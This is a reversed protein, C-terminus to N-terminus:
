QRVPSSVPIQQVPREPIQQVPREGRQRRPRTDRRYNKISSCTCEDGTPDPPNVKNLAGESNLSGEANFMLSVIDEFLKDDESAALGTGHPDDEDTHAGRMTSGEVSKRFDEPGWYRDLFSFWATQNYKYQEYDKMIKRDATPRSWPFFVSLGHSYQSGPGAFEARIVPNNPSNKTLVNMAAKCADLLKQYPKVDGTAKAFEECYKRLCFCFDYLDTYNEQWYSQSKWHALLICNIVLPNRALGDKLASLGDKLADSLDKLPRQVDTIIRLDCLCLDFSYGALLYDTSNQYVYDFILSLMAEVDIETNTKRKKELDNFVRILIQRYPWSGVFAPGQSALMHKATNQLEYAVELSSMSCSHFSVLEFESGSIKEKFSALVEGLEILTVSHSVAHEDYLFVDDGVVLGHGLIFLMYHKAPYKDACLNLFSQLSEKPGGETNGNSNTGAPGKTASSASGDSPPSPLEPLDYILGKKDKLRKIILERIKTGDRSVENGWLRDEMLNTVFPDNSAFGINPKPDKLKYIANVDFYHAPTGASEPDFYAVVNAEHHYGANKLTKLQSVIGPALPNDSAFYFMLTWEKM